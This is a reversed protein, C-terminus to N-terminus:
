VRFGLTPELSHLWYFSKGLFGSTASAQLVEKIYDLVRDIDSDNLGQGQCCLTTLRWFKQTLDERVAGEMFAGMEDDLDPSTGEGGRGPADVGM